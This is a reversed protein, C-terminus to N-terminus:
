IGLLSKKKKDFEEASIIGDEKLKALTRLQQDCDEHSPPVPLPPPTSSSQFAKKYEGWRGYIQKGEEVRTSTPSAVLPDIVSTQSPWVAWVFAALYGIGTLGMVVNIGLIIFRYHHKRRFAIISPLLYIGLVIVVVILIGVVAGVSKVTDNM